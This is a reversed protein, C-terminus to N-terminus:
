RLTAELVRRTNGGLVRRIADDDLGADLLAQTLVPLQSTDFGMRVAGDGEIGGIFDSM